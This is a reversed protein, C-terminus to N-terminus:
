EAFPDPDLYRTKFAHGCEPCSRYQGTWRGPWVEDQGFWRTKMVRTTKTKCRPCPCAARRDIIIYAEPVDAPSNVPKADVVAGAPPVPVPDPAPDPAAM